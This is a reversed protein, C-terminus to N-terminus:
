RAAAGARRKTWADYAVAARLVLGTVPVVREAGGILSM